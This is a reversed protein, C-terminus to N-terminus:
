LKNKLRKSVRKIYKRIQIIDNIDRKDLTPIYSNNSNDADYYNYIKSNNIAQKLKISVNDLADIIDPDLLIISEIYKHMDKVLHEM